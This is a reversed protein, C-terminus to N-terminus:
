KKLKKGAYNAAMNILFTLMMLIAAIAFAVGTEGRENAYVYLAVTLTASSSQLAKVFGNLVLGFGATFLLAASEGVIRGVALICGTVIGDIANPLVVTRVMHWKGAGLGLAGERYSQPVTKLSEQTTRVITPLIMIVLTLGGALIGPALGMKQVFFLMGVLGFIISPIGTLTETAFEILAVVKRNSAYETLYIAAGVGLPLVIVMAVMIIYLTNLINPLIGITDKIYSTQTTLLEWTINGLGRYFIYGILFVLLACTVGACLWLLARLGKDYLRRRPSLKQDM